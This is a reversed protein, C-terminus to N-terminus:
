TEIGFLPLIVVDIKKGQPSKGCKFMHMPILLPSHMIVKEPPVFNLLRFFM